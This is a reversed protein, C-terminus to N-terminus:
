RSARHCAPSRTGASDADSRRAASHGRDVRDSGVPGAARTPEPLTSWWSSAMRGLWYLPLLSDPTREVADLHALIEEVPGLARVLAAATKEGIGRIGPINDSSDGMLALVDIVREPPVGFKQQVGAPDLIEQQNDV